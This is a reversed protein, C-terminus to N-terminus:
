LPMGWLYLSLHFEHANSLVKPSCAIYRIYVTVHKMILFGLVACEIFRQLSFIGNSNFTSSWLQPRLSSLITCAKCNHMSNYYIYMYMYIHSDSAFTLKVWVMDVFFGQLQTGQFIRICCWTSIILCYGVLKTLIYCNSGNSIPTLPGVFDIGVHYWPSKAQLEPTKSNKGTLRKASMVLLYIQMHDNISIPIICIWVANHKADKVIGFQYDLFPKVKDEERRIASCHPM